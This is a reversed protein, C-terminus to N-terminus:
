EFSFPKRSKRFNRSVLFLLDNCGKGMARLLSGFGGKGGHLRLLVSIENIESLSVVSSGHIEQPGSVYLFFFFPFVKLPFKLKGAKLRQFEIPIGTANEVLEYIDSGLVYNNKFEFNYLSGGLGRVFCQNINAQMM